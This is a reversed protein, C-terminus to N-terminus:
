VYSSYDPRFMMQEVSEEIDDPRMRATLERDFALRVVAVAISASVERIRTLAPYLSGQRLDDETVLAALRRAAVIFMEDIVREAGSALIGLGIGPFVYSNNGQRPVFSHSGLRVPANPSGCAFLARGDTHRYASDADCEAQSTPNSLAFIVPTENVEAMARVVDPTFAGAVASVGILASPRVNRIILSLDDAPPSDKAYKLKHETLNNRGRTVLGKSDILWIRSRADEDRLGETRMHAVALDAIGIAAEGAGFLLMNQDALRGGKIRLSALLGALAVAATGQIDDNFVCRDRYRELLHFANQNGFDEFQILVGPFVTSAAEMFEDLIADYDPGRVRKQRLGIYLPNKLLQENQTGVDIVVPLCLSPHIGACASYLSLKGVPIGMGNAGLDGLGLIREGDTVVILRAKEPWNRLLQAINGRDKATVYLGRPRQFIDGYVQCAEGVTPTYILPQIEDIHDCVIRLFLTENRDRLANLAIYKELATPLRRLNLLIRDVQDDINSILPPLLGTLGFAEREAASFATGKNLLPNRLLSPGHPFQVHVDSSPM